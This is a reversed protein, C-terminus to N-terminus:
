GIWGRPPKSYTNSPFPDPLKSVRNRPKDFKVGMKKLAPKSAYYVAGRDLVGGREFDVSTVSQSVSNGWGTGLDFNSVKTSISGMVAENSHTSDVSCAMVAPQDYLSRYFESGENGTNDTWTISSGDLYHPPFDYKSPKINLPVYNRYTQKEDFITVGIVGASTDATGSEEAYSDEKSVFKFAGATDGDVQFGKIELTERSGIVWGRDNEDGHEGSITNLGDVTVVALVRRYYPNTIKLTYETNKRGEIYTRGDKEYTRVSRGNVCVKLTTEKNMAYQEKGAWCSKM